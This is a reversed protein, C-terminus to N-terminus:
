LPSNDSKKEIHIYQESKQAEFYSLFVEKQCSIDFSKLLRTRLHHSFSVNNCYYALFRRMRTERFEPPQFEDLKDSFFCFLEYLDVTFSHNNELEAFLWPKQVASRGIMFGDASPATKMKEELSKCDSIDGNGIVSVSTGHTASIYSALQEVYKWQAPRGYNQRKTRPHLVLRNVGEGILMDAFSCLDEMTFNEEGLRMKVSLRKCGGNSSDMQKRVSRVLSQTEKREKLMWAIGAGLKYIAPASCGMNLDVGIGGLDQVRSVAEVIPKEASDTLQWVIKHPEPGNLLYYREFRGNTNLSSAHIMETYYESCGGFRYILHRFAEHSLTAMPAFILTM